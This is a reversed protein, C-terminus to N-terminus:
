SFIDVREVAEGADPNFKIRRHVDAIRMSRLVREGTGLRVDLEVLEGARPINELMLTLSKIETPDTTELPLWFTVETKM